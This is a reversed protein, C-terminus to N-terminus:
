IDSRFRWAGCWRGIEQQSWAARLHGAGGGRQRASSRPQGGEGAAPVDVYQPAAARLALPSPRGRATRRLALRVLVLFLRRAGRPSARAPLGGAAGVAARPPTRATVRVSLPTLSTREQAAGILERYQTGLRKGTPRYSPLETGTPAPISGQVSDFRRTDARERSAGLGGGLM